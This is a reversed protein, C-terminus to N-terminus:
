ALTYGVPPAAALLDHQRIAAEIQQVDAMDTVQAACLRESSLQHDRHVGIAAYTLDFPRPTWEHRGLFPGLNDRCQLVDIGNDKEVLCVHACQNALDTRVNLRLAGVVSALSNRLAVFNERIAAPNFDYTIRFVM